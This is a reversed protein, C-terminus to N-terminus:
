VSVIFIKKESKLWKEFEKLLEEIENPELPKSPDKIM